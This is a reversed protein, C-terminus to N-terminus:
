KGRGNFECTKVPCHAKCLGSPKPQFVGSARAHELRQLRPLLEGAISGSDRRRFTEARAAGPGHKLFLFRTEINELRPWTHFAIWASFKLQSTLRIKEGTKYDALVAFTDGLIAVDVIARVYALDSNFLVSKGSHDMAIKQETLVCAGAAKATEIPKLAWAYSQMGEPLTTTHGKIREEFVSHVRTGWAMAETEPERNREIYRYEYQRPCTEYKSLASYSHAYHSVSKREDGRPRRGM